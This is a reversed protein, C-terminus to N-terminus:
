EAATPRQRHRQATEEVIKTEIEIRAADACFDIEDGIVDLNWGFSHGGEALAVGKFYTPDKLPAFMEGSSITESLDIEGTLGDEFVIRLVPYRVAEVNKVAYRKMPDPGGRYQHARIETWVFAVHARRRQLWERVLRLKTLPLSGELIDGTAISILAEHEAYKAHFHPPAHDNAFMMVRVGDIIAITPM